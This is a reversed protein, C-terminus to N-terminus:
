SAEVAWAERLFETAPDQEGYGGRSWEPGSPVQPAEHVAHEWDLVVTRRAIGWRGERRELYDLYRLGQIVAEAAGASQRRYFACTVVWAKDDRLVTYPQGMMHYTSTLTGGLKQFFAILGDLDGKYRGHDDHADEHYCSRALEFDQRDVAHSYRGLIEQISYLDVIDNM